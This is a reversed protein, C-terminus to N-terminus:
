PTHQQAFYENMKASRIEELKGRTSKFYGKTSDIGHIAEYDTADVRKADRLLVLDEVPPMPCSTERIRRLERERAHFTDPDEVERTGTEMVDGLEHRAQGDYIKVWLEERTAATVVSRSDCYQNRVVAFHQTLLQM